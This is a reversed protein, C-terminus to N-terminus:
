NAQIDGLHPIASFTPERQVLAPWILSFSGTIQAVAKVEPVAGAFPRDELDHSDAIPVNFDAVFPKHRAIFQAAPLGVTTHARNTDEPALPRPTPSKKM